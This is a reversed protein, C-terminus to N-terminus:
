RAMTSTTGTATPNPAPVPASTAATAPAPQLNIPTGNPTLVVRVWGSPDLPSIGTLSFGPINLTSLPVKIPVQQLKTKFGLLALNAQFPGM